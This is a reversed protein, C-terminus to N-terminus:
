LYLCIWHVGTDCLCSATAGEPGEWVCTQGASVGLNNCLDWDPFAPLLTPIEPAKEPCGDPSDASLTYCGHPADGACGVPTATRADGRGADRTSADRSAADRTVSGDRRVTSADRVDLPAEELGSNNSACGALALVATSTALRRTIMFSGRISDDLLM